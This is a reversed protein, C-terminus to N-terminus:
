RENIGSMDVNGELSCGLCSFDFSFDTENTVNLDNRCEPCKRFAFVYGADYAPNGPKTRIGREAIMM